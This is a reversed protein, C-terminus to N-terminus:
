VSTLRADDSLAGVMPAPMFFDYLGLLWLPLTTASFSYCNVSLLKWHCSERRKWAFRDCQCPTSQSTRSALVMLLLLLLLLMLLLYVYASHIVIDIGHKIPKVLQPSSFTADVITLREHQAGERDSGLQGFQELDLVTMLPNSMTEAYLLQGCNRM